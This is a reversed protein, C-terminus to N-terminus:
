NSVHQIRRAKSSEHAREAGKIYEEYQLQTSKVKGVIHVSGLLSIMELTELATTLVCKQKKVGFYGM